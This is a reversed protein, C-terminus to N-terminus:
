KSKDVRYGLAIITKLTETATARDYDKESEPLQEYTVLCPHEKKVDDRRPGFRWGESTRRAAWRDHVNKALLEILQELHAPLAVGSTNPLLSKDVGTNDSRM